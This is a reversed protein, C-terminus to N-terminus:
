EGTFLLITCNYLFVTTFKERKNKNRETQKSVHYIIISYKYQSPREPFLINQRGEVASTAEPGCSRVTKKLTLEWDILTLQSNPM